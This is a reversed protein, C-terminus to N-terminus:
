RSAWGIANAHFYIGERWWIAYSRADNTRVAHHIREGILQLGRISAWMMYECDPEYKIM